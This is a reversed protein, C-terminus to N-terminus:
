NGRDSALERAVLIRALRDAIGSRRDCACIDDLQPLRVSGVVQLGGSGGPGLERGIQPQRQGALDRAGREGVVTALGADEDVHMRGARRHCGTQTVPESDGRREIFRHNSMITREPYQNHHPLRRDGVGGCLDDPRHTQQRGLRGRRDLASVQHSAQGRLGVGLLEPQALQQLASGVGRDHGVGVPDDLGDVVLRKPHESVGALLQGAGRDVLEDWLGTPGPVSSKSVPEGSLRARTPHAALEVEGRTAPVAALDGDRDGEARDVGVTTQEHDRGNAVDGLSARLLCPELCGLLLEAARKVVRRDPHHDGPEVAAVDLDVLREARDDSVGAVRQDPQWALRDGVGVIDGFVVLRDPPEQRARRARERSLFTEQVGRPV